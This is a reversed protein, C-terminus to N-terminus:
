LPGGTSVSIDPFGSKLLQDMAIILSEYPMEDAVAVIADTKEPYLEKAKQLQARLGEDDFDNEIKAITMAQKGITLIYGFSKVDVKLVVDANPKPAPPPQNEQRKGYLSSGIQIMSVQSWVATILLFTILVSMLDIVPVLNLEVNTRRGRGGGSEIQAM